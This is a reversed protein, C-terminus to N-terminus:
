KAQPLNSTSVAAATTPPMALPQSNDPQAKIPPSVASIGPMYGAPSYSKAPKATPATSFDFIKVPCFTCVPSTTSPSEDEPTCELPNEKTRLTISRAPAFVGAVRSPWGKLCAMMAGVRKYTLLTSAANAWCGILAKACMVPPPKNSFM